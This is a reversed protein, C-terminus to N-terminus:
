RCAAGASAATSPAVRKRSRWTSTPIASARARSSPKRAVATPCWDTAFMKVEPRSVAPSATGSVVPTGGYSNIRVAVPKSAVGPPPKDSYQVRGDADVWRHIQQASVPISALLACLAIIAKM